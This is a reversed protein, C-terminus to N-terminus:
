AGAARMALYQAHRLQRVDHNIKLGQLRSDEPLFQLTNAELARKQEAGHPWRNMVQFSLDNAAQPAQSLADREAKLIVVPKNQVQHNGPTKV